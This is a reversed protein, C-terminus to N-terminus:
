KSNCLYLCLQSLTNESASEQFVQNSAQSSLIDSVELTPQAASSKPSDATGDAEQAQNSMLSRNSKSKEYCNLLMDVCATHNNSPNSIGFLLLEEQLKPLTFLDLQKRSMM